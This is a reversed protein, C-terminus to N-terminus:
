EGEKKFLSDLFNQVEASLEAGSLEGGSMVPCSINHLHQLVMLMLPTEPPGLIMLIDEMSGGLPMPMKLLSITTSALAHLLEKADEIKTPFGDPGVEMPRGTQPNMLVIPNPNEDPFM